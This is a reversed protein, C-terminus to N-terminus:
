SLQKKERRVLWDIGLSFAGLAMLPLMLVQGALWILVFVVGGPSLLAGPAGFLAPLAFWCVVTWVFEACLAAAVIGVSWRSALRLSHIRRHRLEQAPM